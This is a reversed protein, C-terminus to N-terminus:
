GSSANGVVCSNCIGLGPIYHHYSLILDPKGGQGRCCWMKHRLVGVLDWAAPVLCWWSSGLNFGLDGFRSVSLCCSSPLTPIWRSRMGVFPSLHKPNPADCSGDCIPMQTQGSNTTRRRYDAWIWAWIWVMTVFFFMVFQHWIMVSYVRIISVISLIKSMMKKSVMLM